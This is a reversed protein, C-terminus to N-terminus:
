QKAKFVIDIPIGMFGFRKRLLNKLYISYHAKISDPNNVFVLFRPPKTKIQTLYYIRSHPFSIDLRNLLNTAIRRRNSEAIKAILDLTEHINGRKLASIFVIPLFNLHRIRQRLTREYERLCVDRLLDKKNVAIIGAKNKRIIFNLITIDQRSLGERIDILLLVIEARDIAKYTRFLSYLNLTDRIVRKKRIGATDLLLYSRGGKKFFIDVSDRTTGPQDDVLMREDELLSNIFSSKGVNPKGVIAVNITEEKISPSLIPPLKSVLCDLLEGIGLGHAASVPFLEKFGLQYFNAAENKLRENDVKNVVLVIEKEKRKLYLSVDKDLPTLGTKVDTVFIALTAEEIAIDIQKRVLIEIKKLSSFHEPSAILGGTDILQASYGRWHLDGYIRDRTVGDEEGVISKRQKILRNFLSSKGVNPRGVIAIKDKM